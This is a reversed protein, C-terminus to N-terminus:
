GWFLRAFLIGDARDRSVSTSHPRHRSAFRVPRTVKTLGPPHKATSVPKQRRKRKGARSHARGKPSCDICNRTEREIVIAQKANPAAAHLLEGVEGPNPEPSLEPVLPEEVPEFDPAEPVLPVLPWAPCLPVLPVCLPEVPEVPEVPVAPLAVPVDVPDAPAEPADPWVPVLPVAEPVPLV